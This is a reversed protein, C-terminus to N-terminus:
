SANIRTTLKEVEIYRSKIQRSLSLTLPGERKDSKDKSEITIMIIM